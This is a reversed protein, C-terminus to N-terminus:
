NEDHLQHLMAIKYKIGTYDNGHFYAILREKIQEISYIGGDQLGGKEFTKYVLTKELSMVNYEYFTKNFFDAQFFIPNLKHRDDLELHGIIQWDGKRIAHFNVQAAFLIDQKIIFALDINQVASKYDYFVFNYDKIIRGYYFENESIPIIIISGIIKKSRKIM